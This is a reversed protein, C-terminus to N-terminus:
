IFKETMGKRHSDPDEKATNCPFQAFLNRSSWQPAWM